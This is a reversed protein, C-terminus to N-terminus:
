RGITTRKVVHANWSISCSSGAMVNSREASHFTRRGSAGISPTFISPLTADGGSNSTRWLSCFGMMPVLSAGQDNLESGEESPMIM